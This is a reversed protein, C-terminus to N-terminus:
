YYGVTNALKNAVVIREREADCLERMFAEAEGRTNFYRNTDEISLDYRSNTLLSVSWGYQNQSVYM